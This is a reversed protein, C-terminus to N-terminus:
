QYIYQMIRADDDPNRYYNKRIALEEFGYKRYLQNAAKNGARVELLIRVAKEEPVDALLKMWSQMLRDAYGRGRFDESVAIRLLEAEGSLVSYLLYGSIVFEGSDMTVRNDQASVNICEALQKEEINKVMFVNGDEAAILLHNYAHQLSSRLMEYSWCDRFAAKEIAAVANVINM